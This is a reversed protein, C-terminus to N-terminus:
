QVFGCCPDSTRHLPQQYRTYLKLMWMGSSNYVTAAALMGTMPRLNDLYVAPTVSLMCTKCSLKRRTVSLSIAISFFILYQSHM